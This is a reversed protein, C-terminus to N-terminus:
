GLLESWTVGLAVRLRDLTTILLNISGSEIKQITRPHLDAREALQEQTLDCHSRLRQLNRAIKALLVREEKGLPM